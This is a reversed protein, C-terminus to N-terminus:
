IVVAKSQERAIESPSKLGQSQAFASAPIFLALLITRTTTRMEQEPFGQTPTAELACDHVSSGNSARLAIPPPHAHNCSIIVRRLRPSKQTTQNRDIRRGVSSRAPLSAYGPAIKM